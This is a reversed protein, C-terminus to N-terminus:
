GNWVEGMTLVLRPYQSADVNTVKWKANMYEVYRISHYNSYAFPDAVFSIENVTVINDNLNGVAQLRRAVRNADGAYERETIAPKYVGNGTHVMQAYGVKGFWKAM